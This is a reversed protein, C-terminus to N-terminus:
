FAKVSAPSFIVWLASNKTHFLGQKFKRVVYNRPMALFQAILVSSPTSESCGGGGLYRLFRSYLISRNLKLPAKKARSYIICRNAIM